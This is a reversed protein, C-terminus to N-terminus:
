VKRELRIHEVNDFYAFLRELFFKSYHSLYRDKMRILSLRSSAM